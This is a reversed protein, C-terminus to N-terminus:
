VVTSIAEAVSFRPLALGTGYVWEGHEPTSRVGYSGIEIGGLMLDAGEPTKETTIRASDGLLISMVEEADSMVRTWDAERANVFLELKMFGTQYFLNTEPEHRFCPTIGCYAGAPLNMSLFGQEASGVLGGLSRYHTQAMDDDDDLHLVAEIFPIPVPLTARIDKKPVLWPVEVYKYGRDAYESLAEGLIRYDIKPTM